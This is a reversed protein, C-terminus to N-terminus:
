KLLLRKWRTAVKASVTNPAIGRYHPPMTYRSAPSGSGAADPKSFSVLSTTPELGM